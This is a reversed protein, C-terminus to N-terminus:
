KHLSAYVGYFLGIPEKVRLKCIQMIGEQHLIHIACHLTDLAGDCVILHDHHIAVVVHVTGCRNRQNILEEPLYTVLVKNEVDGVTIIVTVADRDLTNVERGALTYRQGNSQITTNFGYFLNNIRLLLTNIEDDAVM